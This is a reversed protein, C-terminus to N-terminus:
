IEALPEALVPDVEFARDQMYEPALLAIGDFFLLLSKIRDGEYRSWSRECLLGLDALKQPGEDSM